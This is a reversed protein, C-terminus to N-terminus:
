IGLSARVQMPTLYGDQEMEDSIYGDRQIANGIQALEDTIEQFADAPLSKGALQLADLLYARRQQMPSYQSLQTM